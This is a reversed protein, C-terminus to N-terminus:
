ADFFNEHGGKAIRRNVAERDKLFLGRSKMREFYVSGSFTYPHALTRGKVMEETSFRVLDGVSLDGPLEVPQLRRAVRVANFGALTGTVIAETHGLLGAKEGCCFLNVAGPVAMKENRPSLALFRVSNARSGGAPSLFRAKELGPIRNLSPLDFYSVMAKVHGTDLLILNESFQPLAYQRCVKESLPSKVTAGGRTRTWTVSAFSLLDDLFRGRSGTMGEMPFFLRYFGTRERKKERVADAPGSEKLEPPLPVIAVGSRDLEDRLGASLSERLFHCSGSVAGAGGDPRIYTKERIGALATLSVRGGFSPCRLVCMACGSGHVTCRWLPGATGTADVFVDGEFSVGEEGLVALIRDRKKKVRVIRTNWSVAIGRDMLLSRLDKEVAAMDCLSAHEHGPFRVQRHRAHRDCLDFLEGAGLAIMEEAATQRGNNRFIGGALGTGLLLDTREVLTVEAGKRRAMLAAACGGWGGGVVVVTAM